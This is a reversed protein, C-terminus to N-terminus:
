NSNTGTYNFRWHCSNMSFWNPFDPRTSLNDKKCWSLLSCYYWGLVFSIVMTGGTAVAMIFRAVLFASFWPSFSSLIGGGAQVGVAIILPLKRGIRFPFVPLFQMRSQPLTKRDCSAKIDSWLHRLTPLSPFIDSGTVTPRTQICM